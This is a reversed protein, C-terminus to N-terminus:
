LALQTSCMFSRTPLSQVPVTPAAEGLWGLRARVARVPVDIGLLVPQGDRSLLLASVGADSFTGTPQRIMGHDSRALEARDARDGGQADPHHRQRTGPLQKRTSWESKPM